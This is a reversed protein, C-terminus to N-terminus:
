KALIKCIDLAVSSQLVGMLGFLSLGILIVAIIIKNKSDAVGLIYLHPSVMGLFFLILYIAENM